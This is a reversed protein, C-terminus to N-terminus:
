ITRVKQEPWDPVVIRKGIGGIYSPDHIHVVMGLKNNLHPRVKKGPHDQDLIRGIEAEQSLPM